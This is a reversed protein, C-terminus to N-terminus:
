NTETPQQGLLKNLLYHMHRAACCAHATATTHPLSTRYPAGSGQDGGACPSRNVSPGLPTCLSERGAWPDVERGEEKEWPILLTCLWCGSSLPARHLGATCVAM